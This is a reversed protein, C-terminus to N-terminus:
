EDMAVATEVQFTVVPFNLSKKTRSSNVADDDEYDGREAVAKNFRINVGSPVDIM